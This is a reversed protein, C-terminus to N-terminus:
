YKLILLVEELEEMRETFKAPTVKVKPVDSVGKLLNEKATLKGLIVAQIKLVCEKADLAQLFEHNSVLNEELQERQKARKQLHQEKRRKLGDETIQLNGRSYSKVRGYSPPGKEGRSANARIMFFSQLDLESQAAM